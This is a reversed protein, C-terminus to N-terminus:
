AQAIKHSTTFTKINLTLPGYRLQFVTPLYFKTFINILCEYVEESM